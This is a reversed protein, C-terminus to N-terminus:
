SFSSKQFSFDLYALYQILFSRETVKQALALCNELYSRDTKRWLRSNEAGAVSTCCSCNTNKENRSLKIGVKQDSPFFM